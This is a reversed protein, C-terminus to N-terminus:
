NSWAGKIYGAPIFSSLDSTDPMETYNFTGQFGQGTGTIKDAIIAGNFVTWRSNMWVTAEPGYIYGNFTGNANIRLTVDNNLFIVLKNTYAHPTQIDVSKNVFIFVDGDGKITLKGKIDLTDVVISINDRGTTNIILEGNPQIKISEYFSDFIIEVPNKTSKIQGGPDDIDPFRPPLFVRMSHEIKEDEELKNDPDIIEGKSEVTGSNIVAHIHSLNLDNNSFLARNFLTDLSTKNLRLTTKEKVGDVKGTSKIVLADNAQSIQVEFSGEEFDNVPSITKDILNAANIQNNIIAEAIIEAGSRALYYAQLHKKENVAQRFDFLSINLLVSGLSFLLVIILLVLVLVMGDEQKDRQM